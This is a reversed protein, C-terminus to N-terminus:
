RWTDIVLKISINNITTPIEVNRQLDIRRPRLPINEDQQWNVYQIKWGEKTTVKDNDPSGIFTKGEADIACAQMWTKMGSIPLPWGLEHTVLEDVNKASRPAQGAPTFIASEPTIEIKAVIQNLPSLLAIQTQTPTQIWTFKGHVAEPKDDRSYHISFRGTVEVFEICLANASLPLNPKQSQSPISACGHLLLFLGIFTLRCGNKISYLNKKQM